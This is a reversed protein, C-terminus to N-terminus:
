QNNFPCLTLSPYIITNANKRTVSTGIKHEYLKEVARVIHYVFYSILILSVFKTAIGAMEAGRKRNAPEQSEHPTNSTPVNWILM